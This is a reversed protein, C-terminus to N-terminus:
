VTRDRLQTLQMEAADYSMGQAILMDRHSKWLARVIKNLDNLDEQFDKRAEELRSRCASSEAQEEELQNRCTILEDNERLETIEDEAEDLRRQLAFIERSTIGRYQYWERTDVLLMTCRRVEGEVDRALDFALEENTTFIYPRVDTTNLPYVAFGHATDRDETNNLPSTLNLDNRM